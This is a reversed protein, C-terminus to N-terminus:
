PDRPEFIEQGRLGSLSAQAHQHEAEEAQDDDATLM